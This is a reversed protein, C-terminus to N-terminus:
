WAHGISVVGAVRTVLTSDNRFADGRLEFDIFADPIPRRWGIAATGAPSTWVTPGRDASYRTHAVGGGGQLYWRPTVQWRLAGVLMGFREGREDVCPGDAECNGFDTAWVSADVVLGLGHRGVYGARAAVGYGFGGSPGDLVDDFLTIIGAALGASVEWHGDAAPTEAAARGSASGVLALAVVVIGRTSMIGGM